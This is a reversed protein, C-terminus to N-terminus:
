GAAVCFLSLCELAPVLLEGWYSARGQRRTKTPANQPEDKMPYETPPPAVYTPYGESPPTPPPPSSAQVGLPHDSTPSAEQQNNCSM